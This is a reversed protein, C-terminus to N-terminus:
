SSPLLNRNRRVSEFNVLTYCDEQSGGDPYTDVIVRVRSFGRKQLRFRLTVTGIRFGSDRYTFTARGRGTERNISITPLVRGDFDEGRISFVRDFEQPDATPDNCVMLVDAGFDVVRGNVVYFSVTDNVLNIEGYYGGYAGGLAHAPRTVVSSAFILSFLVLLKYLKM